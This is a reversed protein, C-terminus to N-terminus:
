QRQWGDVAVTAAVAPAGSSGVARCLQFPELLQQAALDGLQASVQRGGRVLAALQPAGQGGQLLGGLYSGATARGPPAARREWRQLICGRVWGGVRNGALGVLQRRGAQGTSCSLTLALSRASLWSSCQWCRKAAASFRDASRSPVSRRSLSSRPSCRSASAFSCTPHLRPPYKPDPPLLPCASAYTCSCTMTSVAQRKQRTCPRKSAATTRRCRFCSWSLATLRSLPPRGATAAAV